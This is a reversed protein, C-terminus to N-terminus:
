RNQPSRAAERYVRETEHDFGWPAKGIPKSEVELRARAARIESARPWVTWRAMDDMRAKRLVEDRMGDPGVAAEFLEETLGHAAFAAGSESRTCDPPPFVLVALEEPSMNAYIRRVEAAAIKRTREALRRVREAPSRGM